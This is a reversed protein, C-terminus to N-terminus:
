KNGIHKDKGFLCCSGSGGCLICHKQAITYKLAKSRDCLFM